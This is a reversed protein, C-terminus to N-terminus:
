LQRGPAGEVYKMADSTLNAERLVQEAMECLEPKRHELQAVLVMVASDSNIASGRLAYSASKRYGENRHRLQWVLAQAAEESLHGGQLMTAALERRGRRRSTIQSALAMESMPPPLITEGSQREHRRLRRGQSEQWRAYRWQLKAQPQATKQRQARAKARFEAIEAEDDMPQSKNVLRELLTRLRNVGQYDCGQEEADNHSQYTSRSVSPFWSSEAAPSSRVLSRGSNSRGTVQIPSSM